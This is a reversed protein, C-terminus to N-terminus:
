QRSQLFKQLPPLIALTLLSGILATLLQTVSFNIRAAHIVVPLAEPKPLHSAINNGFLPLLALVIVLGMFAAKAVSAALLGVPLHRRFSCKNQFYWATVALICNGAMIAPIISPIGAMIPSGAIFFATIPSVVSILIGSALGGTLVAILIVANVFSGTLYVSLNKFFQSLICLALLVATQALQRTTLKM